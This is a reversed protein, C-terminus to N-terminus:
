KQETASATPTLRAAAERLCAPCLCDARRGAAGAPLPMPLRYPETSCWCEAVNGRSCGFEQGCRECTLRRETEM